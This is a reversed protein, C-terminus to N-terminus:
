TRRPKWQSRNGYGSVYGSEYGSVYGPDYGSVYGSLRSFMKAEDNIHFRTM